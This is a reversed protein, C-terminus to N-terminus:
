FKENIPRLTVLVHSGLFRESYDKYKSPLGVVYRNGTKSVTSVITLEKPIQDQATQMNDSETM